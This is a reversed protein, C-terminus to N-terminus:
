FSQGAVCTNHLLFNPIAVLVTRLSYVQKYPIVQQRLHVNSSSCSDSLSKSKCFCLFKTSINWLYEHRKNIWCVTSCCISHHVYHFHVATFDFSSWTQPKQETQAWCTFTYRERTKSVSVCHALSLTEWGATAPNARLHASHIQNLSSVLLPTFLSCVSPFSPSYIPSVWPPNVGMWCSDGQSDVRVREPRNGARRVM